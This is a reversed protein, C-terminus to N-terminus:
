YYPQKTVHRVLGSAQEDYDFSSDSDDYTEHHHHVSHEETVEDQEEEDSKDEHIKRINKFPKNSNDPRTSSKCVPKQHGIRGCAACKVNRAPCRSRDHVGNGCFFCDKKPQDTRIPKSYGSRNQFRSSKTYVKRIVKRDDLANLQAQAADQERAVSVLSNWTVDDKLAAKRVKDVTSGTGVQAMLAVLEQKAKEANDESDSFRCYPTLERLRLLYGISSEGERQFAFNFDQRFTAIMKAPQYFDQFQRKIKQWKSGTEPVPMTEEILELKPGTVLKFAEYLDEVKYAACEAEFKKVYISANKYNKLFNSSEIFMPFGPPKPPAIIAQRFAAAVGENTAATM